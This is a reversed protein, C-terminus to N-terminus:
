YRMPQMPLRHLHEEEIALDAGARARLGTDAGDAAFGAHLAWAHRHADLAQRVYLRDFDNASVSRLALLARAYPMRLVPPAPRDAARRKAAARAHDTEFRAALARVAPSQGRTRALKAAAVEFADHDGALAAYDTPSVRMMPEIGVDTARMQGTAPAQMTQAVAPAALLSATLLLINRM